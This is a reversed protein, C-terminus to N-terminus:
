DNLKPCAIKQWLSAGDPDAIRADLFGGGMQGLLVALFPETAM